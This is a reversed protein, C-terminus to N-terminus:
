EEGQKLMRFGDRLRRELSVQRDVPRLLHTAGTRRIKRLM